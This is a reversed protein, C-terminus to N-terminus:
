LNAPNSGPVNHNVTWQKFWEVMRGKMFPLKEEVLLANKSPAELETIPSQECRYFLSKTLIKLVVVSHAAKLFFFNVFSSVIEVLFIFSM